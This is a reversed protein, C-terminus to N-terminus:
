LNEIVDDLSRALIYRGGVKEFEEQWVIQELSQKGTKTKIEIGIISIENHYCNHTSYQLVFIDPSGTTGLKIMRTKGKYQSFISGSNNRWHFIKKLELYQLITKQIDRETEKLPNKRANQNGIQSKM